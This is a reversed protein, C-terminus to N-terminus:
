TSASRNRIEERHESWYILQELTPTPYMSVLSEAIALATKLKVDRTDEAWRETAAELIIKLAEKDTM